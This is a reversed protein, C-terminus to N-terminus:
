LYPVLFVSIEQQPGNAALSLYHFCFRCPIAICALWGIAVMSRALIQCRLRSSRSCYTLDVSERHPQGEALRGSFSMSSVVFFIAIVIVTMILIYHLREFMKLKHRQKRARLYTITAPFSKQAGLSTVFLSVFLGNLSHMIWLLFGSLTFALPIM